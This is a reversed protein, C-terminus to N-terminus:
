TRHFGAWDAYFSHFERCRLFKKEQGFILLFADMGDNSSGLSDATAVTRNFDDVLSLIEGARNLNKRKHSSAGVGADLLREALLTMFAGPLGHGTCDYVGFM